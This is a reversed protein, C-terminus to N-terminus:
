YAVIAFRRRLFFSVTEPVVCFISRVSQMAAWALKTRAKAVHAALALAAQGEVARTILDAGHELVGAATARDGSRWARRAYTVMEASLAEPDTKTTETASSANARCSALASIHAFGLADRRRANCVRRVAALALASHIM